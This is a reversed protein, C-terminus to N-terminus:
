VCTHVFEKHIHLEIEKVGIDFLMHNELSLFLVKLLRWVVKVGHANEAKIHCAQFM